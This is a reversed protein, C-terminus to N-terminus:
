AMGVVSGKVHGGVLDTWWPMKVVTWGNWWATGQACVRRKEMTWPGM